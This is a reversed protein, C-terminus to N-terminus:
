VRATSRDRTPAKAAKTNEVPHFDGVMLILLGLVPGVSALLRLPATIDKTVMPMVVMAIGIFCFILGSKLWINRSYNRRKELQQRYSQLTTKLGADSAAAGPWFVKYTKYGSYLSWISLVFGLRVVWLGFRGLGFTEFTTFRLFGWGFWLCLVIGIAASTLM